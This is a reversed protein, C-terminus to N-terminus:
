ALDHQRRNPVPVRAVYVRPWSLPLARSSSLAAALLLSVPRGRRLVSCAHPWSAPRFWVIASLGPGCSRFVAARPFFCMCSLGAALARCARCSETLDQKEFQGIMRRSSSPLLLYCTAGQLSLSAAVVPSALCFSSRRGRSAERSVCIQGCFGCYIGLHLLLNCVVPSCRSLSPAGRPNGFHLEEVDQSNM